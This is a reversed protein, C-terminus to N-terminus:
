GKLCPKRAATTEDLRRVKTIRPAQQLVEPTEKAEQAIAKMAAIFADISEKSETETPEVMIAGQVVL